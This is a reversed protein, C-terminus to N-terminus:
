GVGPTVGDKVASASSAVIVGEVIGSGTYSVTDTTGAYWIATTVCAGTDVYWCPPPADMRVPYQESGAYVMRSPGVANHTGTTPHM